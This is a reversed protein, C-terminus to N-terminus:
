AEREIVCIYIDHKGDTRDFVDLNLAWRWQKNYTGDGLHCDNLSEIGNEDMWEFTEKWYEVEPHRKFFRELGTSVTKAVTTMEIEITRKM